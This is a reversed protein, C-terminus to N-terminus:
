RLQHYAEDFVEPRFTSLLAHRSIREIPAGQAADARGPARHHHGVVAETRVSFHDGDPGVFRGEAWRIDCGLRRRLAEDDEIALYKKLNAHSEPTARYDIPLRDSREHRVARLIREHGTM